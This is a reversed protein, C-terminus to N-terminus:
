RKVVLDTALSGLNKCITQYNSVGIMGSITMLNDDIM